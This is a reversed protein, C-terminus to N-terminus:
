AVPTSSTGGGPQVGSTKHSKLSIADAKVDGGTVTVNGSITAAAGTGGSVSLGKTITVHSDFTSEDATVTLQPTTLSTNGDVAIDATGKVNVAANGNINVEANGKTNITLNGEHSLVIHGAPDMHLDVMAAGLVFRLHMAAGTNKETAWKSDTGKGNLDVHDKTAGVRVFTGNPWAMEFDGAENLTSYVESAHRDVRLNKEGFTMQNVQPYRFGIVTAMGLGFAVAAIPNKPGVKSLDWKEDGSKEEPAYLDNRGYAGNGNSTLVQVGAVRSYDDTMILDVSHDEPHTAVVVGYRIQM